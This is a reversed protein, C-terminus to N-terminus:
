KIAVPTYHEVTGAIVKRYQLVQEHLIQSYTLVRGTFEHYHTESMKREFQELVKRFGEENLLVAAPRGERYDDDDDTDVDDYIETRFHEKKLTGMNFLSCTLTDAVPTRFEEVLDFVLSERGYSLAHLTGIGPDLGATHILGSLRNALVTYLFSLVANVEDLPPNKSRVSFSTWGCNINEGLVPFYLKSGDGEFGRVEDITEAEELRERIVDIGSLAEEVKEKDSGYKRGIRQMFTYQNYLKGRVIDKAIGLSLEEDEGVVHQRHRLLTNKKDSYVLRGVYKGSRSLFVVDINHRFLLMFAGSTITTRGLLVIERVKDPLLKTVNGQYDRYYLVDSSDNLM